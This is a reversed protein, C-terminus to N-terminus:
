ANRMTKRGEYTNQQVNTLKSFLSETKKKSRSLAETVRGDM